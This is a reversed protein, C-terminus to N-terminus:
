RTISFRKEALAYLQRWVARNFLVVVTSMILVAAALMPFNAPPPAEKGAAAQTEDGSPSAAAATPEQGPHKWGAAAEMIDAGLGHAVLGSSDHDWEALISANWAGGAATVWGTVLYPFLAPFYLVWFRQWGTINYSRAAEKLDAPIAMAGAIVNFLIYWQTGLLMLLISGWELVTPDNERGGWAKSAAQLSLIVLPFLLPSPFSALVQVVSQLHRSLRASLGIALGVPVTWITGVAVAILVRGLTRFADLLLIAWDGPEGFAMVLRVLQWAGYILVGTLVFFLGRSLWIVASSQQTPDVPTPAIEAAKEAQRERRHFLGGIAGGLFGILRSRRLWDLFWSTAEEQEGGEEVRFKKAWAVVPRWLLQDLAVIMLVMSLVGLGIAQWNWHDGTSAAHIYSGIGPLWYKKGGFELGEVTALFFWGGAMSMMSNWILGITSFPLEVWRFRQWWSFRYVTAAEQMDAPVSRVSQYFSFTMNWAQGTFIAIIAAIELGVNNHPFLAVFVLILSPAFGLVPISQLIDLLPVLVRQAVRDKAAWYGYVLTFLLSLAYAILGRMLSYFTYLPLYWPSLDITPEIRPDRPAGWEQAANFIGMALAVVVLLFILDTWGMKRPRDLWGTAGGWIKRFLPQNV